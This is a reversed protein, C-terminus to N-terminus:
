GNEEGLRRAGRSSIALQQPVCMLLQFGAEQRFLGNLPEHVRPRGENIDHQTLHPPCLSHRSRRRPRQDGNATIAAALQM